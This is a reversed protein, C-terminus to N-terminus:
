LRNDLWGSAIRSTSKFADVSNQRQSSAFRKDFVLDKMTNYPAAEFVVVGKALSMDRVDSDAFAEWTLFLEFATCLGELVSTQRPYKPGQFVGVFLIVTSYDRHYLTYILKNKIFCNMAVIRNSNVNSTVMRKCFVSTGILRQRRPARPFSAFGNKGKPPEALSEKIISSPGVVGVVAPKHQCAKKEIIERCLRDYYRQQGVGITLCRNDEM